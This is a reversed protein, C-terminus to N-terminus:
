LLKALVPFTADDLLPTRLLCADHVPRRESLDVQTALKELYSTGNNHNFRECQQLFFPLTKRHQSRFITHLINEKAATQELVVKENVREMIAKCVELNGCSIASILPTRGFEDKIQTNVGHHLCFKARELDGQEAAEHLVTKGLADTDDIPFSQSLLREATEFMKDEISYFLANRGDSDGLGRTDYQRAQHELGRDNIISEAIWLKGSRIAVQVPTSGVGDLADIPAGAARLMTYLLKDTYRLAQSPSLPSGSRTFPVWDFLDSMLREQNNVQYFDADALIHCATMARDDAICDTISAGREMLQAAIHPLGCAVAVLFPTWVRWRTNVEVSHRLIAACTDKNKAFISLLLPPPIEKGDVSPAGDNLLTKVGEDRYYTWCTQIFTTAMTWHSNCVVHAFMLPSGFLQRDCGLDFIWTVSNNRDEFLALMLASVGTSPNKALPDVDCRSILFYMFQKLSKLVAYELLAQLLGSCMSSDPLTADISGKIHEFAQRRIDELIDPILKQVAPLTSLDVHNQIIRELPPTHDRRKTRRALSVSDDHVSARLGKECDQAPALMLIKRGIESKPLLLTLSWDRLEQSTASEFNGTTLIYYIAQGQAYLSGARAAQWLFNWAQSQDRDVLVGQNYCVFLANLDDSREVNDKEFARAKIELFLANKIIAPLDRIRQHNVLQLVTLYMACSLNM